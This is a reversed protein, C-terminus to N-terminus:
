DGGRYGGMYVSYKYFTTYIQRKVFIGCHKAKNYNKWEISKATHVFSINMYVIQFSFPAYTSTSLQAFYAASQKSERHLKDKSFL